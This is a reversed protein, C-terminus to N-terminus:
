SRIGGDLEAYTPFFRIPVGTFAAVVTAAMRVMPPIKRGVVLIYGIQSRVSRLCEQWVQRADSEYGTVKDLDAVFDVKKKGLLEIFEACAKKSKEGTAFGTVVVLMRRTEAQYTLTYSEEVPEV